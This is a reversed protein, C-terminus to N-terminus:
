NNSVKFYQKFVLPNGWFGKRSVREGPASSRVIWYTSGGLHPFKRCHEPTM